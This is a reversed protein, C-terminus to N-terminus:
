PNRQHGGERRAGIKATAPITPGLRRLSSRRSRPRRSSAGPGPDVLPGRRPVTPVQQESRVGGAEGTRTGEISGRQRGGRRSRTHAGAQGRASRGALSRVPRAGHFSPTRHRRTAGRVLHRRRVPRPSRRPRAAGGLPRAPRGQPRGRWSSGRAPAPPAPPTRPPGRATGSRGWVRETRPGPPPAPRTSEPTSWEPFSHAPRECWGAARLAPRRSPPWRSASRASREDGWGRGPPCGGPM